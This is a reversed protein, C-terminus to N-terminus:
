GDPVEMTGESVLISAGGVRVAEAAGERLDVELELLSPRGMELGQEVRWGVTGERRGERPALYGALATVAAGTAPDEEIGMAPAFMRARVEARPDGPERCIVYVHPAWFDALLTEWRDRRLRARALAPRGTVPIFLFPVGGSIALPHDSQTELVESPRLSLMDALVDRAPARPGYELPRPAWLHASGAEGRGGARVTVRVPGVGEEFVLELTEGRLRVAGTHVLVHACGVTPHGAFPLEARPTFIRLRRAHGTQEPPFVFVTESLNLEAAIRQMRRADLGQADPFVALPNGGFIRTTFVDATYFGYRM